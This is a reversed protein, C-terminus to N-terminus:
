ERSTGRCVTSAYLLAPMLLSWLVAMILPGAQPSAFDVASLRTGAIYSLSGGVAGLLAALWYHGALRGFAHLLTTALVPWLCSMWLPAAAAAGNITFVGLAFLLQDLLFGVATVAAVLRLEPARWGCASFHIILHVGVAALAIAASQGLVIVLWSLNFLLGNLVPYWGSLGSTRSPLVQM